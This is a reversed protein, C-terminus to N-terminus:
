PEDEWDGDKSMEEIYEADSMKDYNPCMADCHGDIGSCPMPKIGDAVFQKPDTKECYRVWKRCYKRQEYALEELEIELGVQQTWAMYLDESIGLKELRSRAKGTNDVAMDIISAPAQVEKLQRLSKEYRYRTYMAQSIENTLPM